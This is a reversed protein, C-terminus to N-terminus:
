MREMAVAAVIVFATISVLLTCSMIARVWKYDTRSQHVINRQLAQPDDDVIMQRTAMLHQAVTKILAHRVTIYDLSTNSLIEVRCLPCILNQNNIYLNKFYKDICQGCFKHHKPCSLAFLEKGSEFCIPCEEIDIAHGDGETPQKTTDDDCGAECCHGSCHENTDEISIVPVIPVIVTEDVEHVAVSNDVITSM